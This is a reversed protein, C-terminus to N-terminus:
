LRRSFEGRVDPWPPRRVMAATALTAAVLGILEGLLAIRTNDVAPVWTPKGDKVVFIGLPRSSTRGNDTRHRVKSVPIVTAGDPTLYPDGFVRSTTATDTSISDLADPLRM